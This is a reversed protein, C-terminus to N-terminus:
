GLHEAMVQRLKEELEPHEAGLNHAELGFFTFLHMPSTAVVTASRHGDRIVAVEGLVDGPGVSRVQHDDVYVDATGTEIVAFTYAGDGQHM